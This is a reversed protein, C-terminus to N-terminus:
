KRTKRRKWVVIVFLITMICCIGLVLYWVLKEFTLTVKTKTDVRGQVPASEQYEIRTGRVLLRHDNVGYPTCTLLTIYDKNKIIQIDETEDPLVVKSQDVEYALIRNLVHIYIKDGEKLQDLDTFLEAAPLGTHGSLVCHTSPGGVPLSTGELHGIGKELIEETTGHYIPLYVGIKPIEIYGLIGSPNKGLLDNYDFKKKSVGGNQILSKNYEEALKYEKELEKTDTKEVYQNYQRISVEATRNCIMNSIIPYLLLGMGSLLLISIVIQPIRERRKM